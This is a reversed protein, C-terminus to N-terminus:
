ERGPISSNKQREWSSIWKRCLWLPPAAFIGFGADVWRWGPPIGRVPGATFALVVVGGCAILGWTVCWQNRVPDRFPGVFLIAIVLHAFALWDTGYALFPYRANTERLAQGVLELWATLGSQAAFPMWSTTRLTKVLWDVETQLPFATIGSILLGGIVIALCIRIRKLLAREIEAPM